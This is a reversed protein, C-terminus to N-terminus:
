TCTVLKTFGETFRVRGCSFQDLDGSWLPDNARGWGKWSLVSWACCPGGPKLFLSLGPPGGGAQTFRFFNGNHSSRPCIVNVPSSPLRGLACPSNVQGEGQGGTCMALVQWPEPQERLSHGGARLSLVRPCGWCGEKGPIGDAGPMHTECPRGKPCFGVPRGREQDGARDGACRQPEPASGGEEQAM